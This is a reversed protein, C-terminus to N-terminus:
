PRPPPPLAGTEAYARLMKQQEPTLLAKAALIADLYHNIMDTTAKSIEDGKSKVAVRDPKDARLLERLEISDVAIGAGTKITFTETDVIIKRLSDAQQDTIGLATRVRTDDAVSMLRSIAGLQGAAGQVQSMPGMMQSTGPGMMGGRPTTQGMPRQIPGGPNPAPQAGQTPAPQSPPSPPGQAFSGSGFALFGIASILTVMMKSRM